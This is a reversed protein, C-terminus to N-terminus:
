RSLSAQPRAARASPYVEILNDGRGVGPVTGVLSNPDGPGFHESVDVGKLKIAVNRLAAASPGRVIVPVADGSAVFEPFLAHLSQISFPAAGADGSVASLMALLVTRRLKARTVLQRSPNGM